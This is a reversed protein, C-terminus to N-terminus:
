LSELLELVEPRGYFRQTNRSSRLLIESSEVICGASASARRDPPCWGRARAPAAPIFHDVQACGGLYLQARAHRLGQLLASVWRSHAGVEIVVHRQVVRRRPLRVMAAPAWALEISGCRSLRDRLQQVPDGHEDREGSPRPPDKVGPGFGSRGSQDPITIRAQAVNNEYNSEPLQHCVGGHLPDANRCPEGPVPVFGPNVTVRIIYDGPRIGRAPLCIRWGSEGM